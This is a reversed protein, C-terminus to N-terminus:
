TDGKLFSKLHRPFAMAPNPDRRLVEKCEPFFPFGELSKEKPGAEKFEQKQLSTNRIMGVQCWSMHILVSRKLNYECLISNCNHILAIQLLYLYM